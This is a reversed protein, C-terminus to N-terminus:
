LPPVAVPTVDDVDWELPSDIDFVGDVAAVAAVVAAVESRHTARGRLRVVGWEVNATVHSQASDALVKDVARQLDTDTRILAKLVDSRTVIGVIHGGEVAVLRRVSLRQMQSVADHLLVDPATTQAPRSCAEGATTAEHRRWSEEVDRGFGYRPRGEKDILDRDTLVGIMAGDDDVVPAGTIRLHFLMLAATKLPLDPHMTFPERTM